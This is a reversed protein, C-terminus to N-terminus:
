VLLYLPVSKILLIVFHTITSDLISEAGINVVEPVSELKRV